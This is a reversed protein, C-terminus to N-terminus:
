GHHSRFILCLAPPGRVSACLGLFYVAAYFVIFFDNIQKRIAEKTPGFDIELRRGKVKQAAAAKDAKLAATAAKDAAVDDKVKQARAEADSAPRAKKAAVPKAAPAPKAAQVARAASLRAQASGAVEKAKVVRNAPLNSQAASPAMVAEMNPAQSFVLLGAVSAAGLGLVATFSSAQAPTM